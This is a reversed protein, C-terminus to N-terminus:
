YRWYFDFILRYGNSGLHPKSFDETMGGLIFTTHKGLFAYSINGGLIKEDFNYKPGFLIRNWNDLMLGYYNQLETTYGNRNQQTGAYFYSDTTPRQDRFTLKTYSIIRSSGFTDFMFSFDLPDQDYQAYHSFDIGSSFTYSDESKLIFKTGFNYIDVLNLFPTTSLQFREHIGYSMITPGLLWENKTLNSATQGSWYGLYTLPRYRNQANRDHAQLLHYSGNFELNKKEDFHVLRAKSGERLIYDKKEMVITCLVWNESSKKHVTAFAIVLNDSQSYIAFISGDSISEMEQLISRTPRIVIEKDNIIKEVVFNAKLDKGEVVAEDALALPSLM